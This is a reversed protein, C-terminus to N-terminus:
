VSFLHVSFLHGSGFISKKAMRLNHNRDVSSNEFLRNQKAAPPKQRNLDPIPLDTSCGATAALAGTFVACDGEEVPSHLSLDAVRDHGEVMLLSLPFLLGDLLGELPLHIM